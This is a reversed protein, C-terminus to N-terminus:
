SKNHILHICKYFYFVSLLIIFIVIPMKGTRQGIWSLTNLQSFKDTDGVVYFEQYVFFALAAFLVALFFYILIEIKKNKM